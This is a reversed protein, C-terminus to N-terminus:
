KVIGLIAGVNIISSKLVIRGLVLVFEICIIEAKLLPLFNLVFSIKSCIASFM